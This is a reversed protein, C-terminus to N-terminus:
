WGTTDLFVDTSDAVGDFRNAMWVCCYILEYSPCQNLYDDPQEKEFVQGSIHYQSSKCLHKTASTYSWYLYSLGRLVGACSM